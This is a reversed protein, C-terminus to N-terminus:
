ARWVRAGGRLGGTTTYECPAQWVWEVLSLLAEKTPPQLCAENM